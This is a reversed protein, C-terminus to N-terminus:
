QVKLGAQLGKDIRQKRREEYKRVAEPYQERISGWDLVGEEVDLRFLSTDLLLSEPVGRLVWASCGIANIEKLYPTGTWTSPLQTVATHAIQLCELMPLTLGVSPPLVELCTNRSLDLVSLQPLSQFFTDDIHRIANGALFLKTLTKSNCTGQLSELKNNNLSLTELQPLNSVIVAVEPGHVIRFENGELNLTKLHALSVLSVLPIEGVFSNNSLNLSRVDPVHQALINLIGEMNELGEGSASFVKM